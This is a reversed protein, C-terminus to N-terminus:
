LPQNEDQDVEQNAEGCSQQFFLARTVPLAHKIEAVKQAALHSVLLSGTSTGLCITNDNRRGCTNFVGGAFAGQKGGSIM